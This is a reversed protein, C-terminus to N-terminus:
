SLVGGVARDAMGDVLLGSIGAVPFETMGSGEKAKHGVGDWDESEDAVRGAVVSAGDTSFITSKTSGDAMQWRGDAIELVGVVHENDIHESM